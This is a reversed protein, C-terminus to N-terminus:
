VLELRFLAVGDTETCARGAHPLTGGTGQAVRRTGEKGQPQQAVRRRRFAGCAGGGEAHGGDFDDRHHGADEGVYAALQQVYAEDLETTITYSQGYIQVKVGRSMARERESHGRLPTATGATGAFSRTCIPRCRARPARRATPRWM